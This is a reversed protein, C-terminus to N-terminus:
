RYSFPGTVMEAIDWLGDCDEAGVAAAVEPYRMAASLADKLAGDALNKYRQAQKLEATGAKLDVDKAAAAQAFVWAQWRAITMTKLDDTMAAIPAGVIAAVWSVASVLEASGAALGLAAGTRSLQTAMFTALSEETFPM